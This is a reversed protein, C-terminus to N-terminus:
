KVITYVIHGFEPAFDNVEDTVFLLRIRTAGPNFAYVHTLPIALMREGRRHRAGGFVPGARGSWWSMMFAHSSCPPSQARFKRMLLRM